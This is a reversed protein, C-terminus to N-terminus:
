RHFLAILDDKFVVVAAWLATGIFTVTGWKGEYRALKLNIAEMTKQLEPLGKVAEEVKVLREIVELPDLGSM